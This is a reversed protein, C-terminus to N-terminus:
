RKFLEYAQNYRETFLKYNEKFFIDDNSTPTDCHCFLPRAEDINQGWLNVGLKDGAICVKISALNVSDETTILFKNQINDLVNVAEDQTLFNVM